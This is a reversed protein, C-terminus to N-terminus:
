WKCKCSPSFHVTAWPVLAAIHAQMEDSILITRLDLVQLSKLQSLTEPFDELNNSWLDLVKLKDLNGIQPPLGFLENQNANLYVLNTLKGINKNISSLSNKGV